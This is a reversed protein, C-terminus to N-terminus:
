FCILAWKSIGVKLVKVPSYQLTKFILKLLHSSMGIQLIDVYVWFHINMIIPLELKQTSSSSHFPCTSHTWFYISELSKLFTPHGIVSKSLLKVTDCTQCNDNYHTNWNNFVNVSIATTQKIATTAHFYCKQMHIPNLCDENITNIFFTKVTIECFKLQVQSKVQKTM